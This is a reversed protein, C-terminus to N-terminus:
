TLAAIFAPPCSLSLIFSQWIHPLATVSWKEWIMRQTCTQLRTVHRRKPPYTGTRALRIIFHLWIPFSCFLKWFFFLLLFIVSHIDPLTVPSHVMEYLLSRLGVFFFSCLSFNCELPWSVISKMSFTQQFLLCLKEPEQCTQPRIMTKPARASNVKNDEYKHSLKWVLKCFYQTDACCAWCNGSVHCSTQSCWYLLAAQFSIRTRAQKGCGAWGWQRNGKQQNHDIVDAILPWKPRTRATISIYISWRPRHSMM